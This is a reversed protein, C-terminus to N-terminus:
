RSGGKKDLGFFHFGNWHAGTIAKAVASLSSFVQGQFEFGDELVKVQLLKGKYSRALLAGPMPLRREKSPGTQPVRSSRGRPATIRLDADNALEAARRRARESLDGEVLVQLRWAIRRVLQQKHHSRTPEGFLELHKDRLRDVTMHRLAVVEKEFKLSM